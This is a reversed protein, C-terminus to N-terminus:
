LIGSLILLLLSVFLGNKNSFAFMKNPNELLCAQISQVHQFDMRHSVM